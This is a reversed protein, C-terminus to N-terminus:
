TTKRNETRGASGDHTGDDAPVRDVQDLASGVLLVELEHFAGVTGTGPALAQREVTCGEFHDYGVGKISEGVLKGLEHAVDSDLDLVPGIVLCEEVETEIGV